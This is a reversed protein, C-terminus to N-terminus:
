LEYETFPMKFPFTQAHISRQKELYTIIIKTHVGTEKDDRDEWRYMYIVFTFYVYSTSELYRDVRSVNYICASHTSSQM